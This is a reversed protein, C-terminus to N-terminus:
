AKKATRKKAITSTRRTSKSAAPKAKAKARTRARGRARAATTKAKAVGYPSRNPPMLSIDEEQAKAKVAAVSRGLKLGIVRTPTNDKAMAKLERVDASSWEKTVNRIYRPLKEGNRARESPTEEIPEFLARGSTTRKHPRASLSLGTKKRATTTRTGARKKGNSTSSRTNAM